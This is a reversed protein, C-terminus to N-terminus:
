VGAHTIMYEWFLQAAQPLHGQSRCAIAIETSLSPDEFRRIQLSEDSPPLASSLPLAPSHPLASSPLLGIGLGNQALLLTTQADDNCCRIRPSCAISEFRSRLIGEWRRYLILPKAALQELSITEGPVDRLYDATGVAVLSEKKLYHIDLEPAFFPTRIVALDLGGVHLQELLQYTNASYLDYQIQPYHGAFQCLWKPFLTEQVSSIVGIRLTGAAGTTFDSMEAATADCLGLITCAREYLAHGAETLHLRRGRHEFLSCGLEEELNHLQATLPPQTMNLRRAAGTVTGEEVVATFYRLQRIEM